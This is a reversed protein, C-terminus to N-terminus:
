GGALKIWGVDALDCIAGGRAYDLSDSIQCGCSHWKSTLSLTHHTRPSVWSFSLSSRRELTVVRCVGFQFKIGNLNDGEAAYYNGRAFWIFSLPTEKCGCHTCGANREHVFGAHNRWVRRTKICLSNPLSREIKVSHPSLEALNSCAATDRSCIQRWSNGTRQNTIFRINHLTAYLRIKKIM